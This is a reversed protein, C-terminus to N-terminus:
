VEKDKSTKNEWGVLVTSFNKWKERKYCAALRFDNHFDATRLTSSIEQEPL